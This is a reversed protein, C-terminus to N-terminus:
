QPVLLILNQARESDRRVERIHMFFPRSLDSMHNPDMWKHRRCPLPHLLAIPPRMYIPNSTLGMDVDVFLKSGVSTM